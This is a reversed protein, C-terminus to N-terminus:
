SNNRDFLFNYIYSNRSFFFFEILDEMKELFQIINKLIYTIIRLPNERYSEHVVTALKILKPEVKLYTDCIGITSAEFIQRDISKTMNKTYKRNSFVIKSLCNRNMM